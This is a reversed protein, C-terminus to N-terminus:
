KNTLSYSHYKRCSFCAYRGDSLNPEAYANPEECRVCSLTPRPLAPEIYEDNVSYTEGGFRVKHTWNSVPSLSVYEGVDGTKAAVVDLGIGRGHECTARIRDGTKYTHTVTGVASIETDTYPGATVGNDWLVSPGTVGCSTAVSKVTGLTGAPVQSTAGRALRRVRQGVSWATVSILWAERYGPRTGLAPEDWSVTYNDAHEDKETVTGLHSSAFFKVRDGVKFM